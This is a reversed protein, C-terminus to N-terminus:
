LPRSLIQPLVAFRQQSGVANASRVGGSRPRLHLRTLIASHQVGEEKVVAIDPGRGVRQERRSL